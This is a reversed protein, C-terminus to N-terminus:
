ISKYKMWKGSLYRFIFLLDRVFWDLFMAMWTGFVGIGMITGFIYAFVIRFLLMSGIGAYMPFRVDGAARFTM